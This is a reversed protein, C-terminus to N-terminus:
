KRHDIFSFYSYMYFYKIIFLVYKLIKVCDVLEGFSSHESYPLSVITDGDKSKRIKLYTNGGSSEGRNLSWGTPQFAIARQYGSKQKLSSISKFNIQNMPVVWLFSSKPDTTLRALTLTPWDYCLM